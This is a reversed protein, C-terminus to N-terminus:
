AVSHGRRRSPTANRHFRTWCEQVTTQPSVDPFRNCSFVFDRIIMLIVCLKKAAAAARQKDIQRNRIVDILRAFAHACGGFAILVWSVTCNPVRKALNRRSCHIATIQRHVYLNTNEILLWQDFWHGTHSSCVGCNVLLFVDFDDHKPWISNWHISMSMLVGHVLSYFIERLLIEGYRNTEAVSFGVFGVFEM